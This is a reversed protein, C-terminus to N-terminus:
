RKGDPAAPHAGEAFKLDAQAFEEYGVLRYLEKRDLMRDLFGVQTGTAKLEVLADRVAKMMLRFVTVPFITIQYGMRAFEAQPLYPTQGFDTMNALLPVGPACERMRRAFEAFEERTNLAEPFIVDAGADIYAAARAVADEFGHVAKADTRAIVVFDHDRRAGIAARIKQCMEETSIVAKGPLHGCRKSFVQDEIHVGAVGAREYEQIARAVNHIGGFGTDIDAIVPLDPVAAAIYGAARVMETLDMLGIDPVGAVGNATAAGSVYVARFGVERAIKAVIADFVGPVALPEGKLLERLKTTTRMTNQDFGKTDHPRWM